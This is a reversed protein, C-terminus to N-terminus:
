KIQISKKATEFIDDAISENVLIVPYNLDILQGFESGTPEKEQGKTLQFQTICYFVDEDNPSQWENVSIELGKLYEHLNTEDQFTEDKKTQELAAPLSVTIEGVEFLITEESTVSATKKSPTTEITQNIISSKSNETNDNITSSLYSEVSKSELSDIIEESSNIINPIKHNSECSTFLLSATILVSLLIGSNSLVFKLRPNRLKCYVKRTM